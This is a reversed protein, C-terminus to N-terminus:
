RCFITRFVGSLSKGIRRISSSSASPCTESSNTEPVGGGQVSSSPSGSTQETGSVKKLAEFTEEEIVSLKTNILHSCESVQAKGAEDVFDMAADIFTDPDQERLFKSLSAGKLPKLTPCSMVLPMGDEELSLFVLMANFVLVAYDGERFKEDSASRLIESFALYTGTSLERLHYGTGPM